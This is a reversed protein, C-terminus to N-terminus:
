NNLHYKSIIIKISKDKHFVISFSDISSTRGTESVRSCENSYPHLDKSHERNLNFKQGSNSFSPLMTSLLPLATKIGKRKWVKNYERQKEIM